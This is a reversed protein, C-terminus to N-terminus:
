YKVVFLGAVNRPRAETGGSNAITLTHGHAGASNTSATYLSNGNPVGQVQVGNSGSAGASTIGHTHAGASDATGTHNHALNQSAQASGLARGTDVGRGDDFGRLFEGRLDPLNFTTSGDGAGFMTGYKAFLNAYTSRSIAAGNAKIWGTPATATFVMKVDGPQAGKEDLATNINSISTNLPAIAAAIVANMAATTVEGTPGQPGTPGAPGQPGTAGTAGTAGTNGQPGQPGQPGVISTRFVWAGAAKEYVNGTDSVYMDGDAGLGASPAGVGYRLLSGQPGQVGQPGQAGAPGAPGQPGQPGTPGAPGQIGQIGQVGQPGRGFYAGTSWDGSTASLKFYLLGNTADLFAFGKAQGDYTSREAQAGIANPTFSQGAVGQIGQPGAPGAPGTEGTPGTPGTAGQPGAPGAPGTPGAPGVLNSGLAASVAEAKISGDDAIAQRVFDIVQAVSLNTRNFETDLETGPQPVTPQTQTHGTFSFQKEPKAPVPKPM